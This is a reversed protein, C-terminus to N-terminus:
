ARHDMLRRGDPSVGVETPVGGRGLVSILRDSSRPGVGIEAGAVRLVLVEEHRDIVWQLPARENATAVLM